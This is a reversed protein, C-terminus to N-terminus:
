ESRDGGGCRPTAAKGRRPWLPEARRTVDLLAWDVAFGLWPRALPDVGPYKEEGGVAM